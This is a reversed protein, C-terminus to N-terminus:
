RAMEVGFRAAHSGVLRPTIDGAGTNAFSQRIIKAELTGPAAILVSLGSGSAANGILECGLQALAAPIGDRWRELAISYLMVDRAAAEALPRAIVFVPISAPHDPREVFPLRAIIKPADPAALKEWWAGASAGAEVRLLGLDGEAKGIADIVAPAGYHALYPVTFGFHFRVSDRMATDGGAIDAHVSYASQVYTFTSIIIRWIGEVTDLPLPGEHRQVLRRMMEAERGPRFASGGGQRAKVAILRNIILGREMLLSHLESDIRDIDIRLDALTEPQTEPGKESATDSALGMNQFVGGIDMYEM